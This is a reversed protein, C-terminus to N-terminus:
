VPATSSDLAALLAQALSTAANLASEAEARGVHVRQDLQLRSAPVATLYQEDVIGNAHTLLHRLAAADLLAPWAQGDLGELSVGLHREYLGSADRLRQFINRERRLVHDANTVRSRFVQRLFVELASFTNKVSDEYVKTFVGDAEMQARVDAPLDDLHSM